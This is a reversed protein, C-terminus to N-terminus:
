LASVGRERGLRRDFTLLAKCDAQRIGALIVYDADIGIRSLKETSPLETMQKRYQEFALVVMHLCYQESMKPVLTVDAYAKQHM